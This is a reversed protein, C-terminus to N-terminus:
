PNSQPKVKEPKPKSEKAEKQVGRIRTDTSARKQSNEQSKQYIQVEFLGRPLLCSLFAAKQFLANLWQGRNHLWSFSTSRVYDFIDSKRLPQSNFSVCNQFRWLWWLVLTSIIFLKHKKEKPAHWSSLWDKFAEFSLAQVFPIECWRYVLKKRPIIKDWPTSPLSPLTKQDVINHADKVTFTNNPGLNWVCTDESISLPAEGVWIDKWFRIRTGCGANFRFSNNLIIGKSHLFNSSGVINAWTGKFSCGNNDFGGEHGHFAKVVKVWLDNPSTFLRWRWKQLLALNFAKLSGINLGGNDYSNLIISWKVWAMKKGDQNGGWFFNSRIRELDNLVSEPARFISLYYIGLSGLVSKILTLRGGISLLSAKWTSLRSRFRDILMKWSAISKMNSGIPLGLYNFPINGAICGANSAMNYVEDENVGIGYINSKHINIKLGSALYFVHLVRIINELDRANWGTTIIVDDAFFLHSINISSNNINIGSILGNGVADAFANHLGEMVLIFLFPSLPDGQRLGRNIFFESPHLAPVNVISLPFAFSFGDPGPAKSSGCDWVAEKIEERTVLRELYDHDMINLTQSHPLNPFSFQSDQAQFKFPLNIFPEKILCQFSKTNKDREIDWKVRAKQILDMLPFKDIIELEHLLNLRNETDSPSALGEDIKKEISSLEELAVAKRNRQITKNNNNWQRIKAKLICFKEHCKIPFGSNNSDLSDWESKILDDFGDRLLWSNYLKFPSPGFDIKDVHLLIPNHDSWIRDLATIRIDLLLDIVDESILFRDLKSLKTGAKNMWTFCRGGIPLDVLGTADIFSNFYDAEINNFISGVREQENRVANMDGFMIYSGNHYHMFDQLRNWLPLKSVMHIGIGNIMKNLTRKCGRVDYGLSNGVDIIQNLEHILSVGKIDKKRFRAFSTSCKSSPSSSKKMFEFGPPRSLYSSEAKCEPNSEKNNAEEKPPQQPVILHIDEEGQKNEENNDMKQKSVQNVINTLNTQIYKLDDVSHDDIFESSTDVDKINDKSSLDIYDDTIKICWSGIEQVTTEFLENNIEVQVNKSIFDHSKSSVCVRGSSLASSYEKEFFLFKAFSCAIKKYANSGWACLPLGSIEIWLIREDVIFNSSPARKVSYLKKLSENEQFKSCASSSPFQIWIWYGGVHHTNLYSFGENRCIIYMNSMSDIDKLKVLLISYRGDDTEPESSMPQLYAWAAHQLLPDKIQIERWSDIRRFKTPSDISSSSSISLDKLSTYSSLSHISIMEIDSDLSSCSDQDHGPINSFLKNNKTKNSVNTQQYLQSEMINRTPNPNTPM